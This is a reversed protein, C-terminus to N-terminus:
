KKPIQSFSFSRNGHPLNEKSRTKAYYSAANVINDAMIQEHPSNRRLRLEFSPELGIAAASPFCSPNNANLHVYGSEPLVGIERSWIGDLWSKLRYGSQLKTGDTLVIINFHPSNASSYEMTWTTVIEVNERQAKQHFKRMTNSVNGTHNESYCDIPYKLVLSAYLVQAHRRRMYSLHAQLGEIINGIVPYEETARIPSGNVVPETTIKQRM